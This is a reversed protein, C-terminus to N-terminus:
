YQILEELTAISGQGHTDQKMQGTIRLCQEKSNPRPFAWNWNSSTTPNWIATEWYCSTEAFWLERERLYHLWDEKSRGGHNGMLVGITTGQLVM